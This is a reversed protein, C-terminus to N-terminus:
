GLAQRLRDPDVRFWDHVAGDVFVVPVYEAWQSELAADGSIDREVWAVGAAGAVRGVERCADECLHCGPKTLVTIRAEETV